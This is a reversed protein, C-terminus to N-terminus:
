AIDDSDATDVIYGMECVEASHEEAPQQKKPPPVAIAVTNTTPPVVQATLKAFIRREITGPILVVGVIM